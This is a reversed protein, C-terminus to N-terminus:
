EISESTCHKFLEPLAEKIPRDLLWPDQWFGSLDGDGIHFVVSTDFVQGVMNDVPVPLGFWPKTDDM